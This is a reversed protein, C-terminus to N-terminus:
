SLNVLNRVVNAILIFHTDYAISRTVKRRHRRTVRLCLRLTVREIHVSGLLQVLVKGAGVYNVAAAARM